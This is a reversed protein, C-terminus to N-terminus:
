RQCITCAHERYAQARESKLHLGDDDCFLRAVLTRCAALYENYAGNVPQGDPFTCWYEEYYNDAFVINDYFLVDADGINYCPHPDLSTFQDVWLGQAGVLRTVDSLLSAGRSHGILHIPLEALAHSLTGDTAEGFFMLAQAVRPSIQVTPTASASCLQGAIASWDVKVIVQASALSELAPSGLDRTFSAITPIGGVNTITLTYQAVKDLGGARIAVENAMNSAWTPFPPGSEYGHTIVTVGPAPRGLVYLDNVESASLARNYLRVEDLDGVSSQNGQRDYMFTLDIPNNLPMQLHSGYVVDTSAAIALNGNLYGRIVDETKKYTYVVQNWAGPAFPVPAFAGWGNDRQNSFYIKRVNNSDLAPTGIYIEWGGSQWVTPFSKQLIRYNYGDYNNNNADPRVWFQITFDNSLVLQSRHPVTVYVSGPNTFVGAQGLPSHDVYTLNGTVTGTNGHSSADNANGNLPYYAVLGTNLDADATSV